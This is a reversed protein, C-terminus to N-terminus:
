GTRRCLEKMLGACSSSGERIGTEALKLLAEGLDALGAMRNGQQKAIYLDALKALQDALAGEGVVDVREVLFGPPARKRTSTTM